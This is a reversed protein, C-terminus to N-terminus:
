KEKLDAIFQVHEVATLENYLELYPSVFGLTTQLNRLELRNESNKWICTGKTPVTVNAIIKLLTSKGSGNAGIIAFINGSYAEFSVPSFVPIKTYRKTINELTLSINNHSDM